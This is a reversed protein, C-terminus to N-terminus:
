GLSTFRGLNKFRQSAPLIGRPLAADGAHTFRAPRDFDGAGHARRAGHVGRHARDVAQEGEHDARLEGLRDFLEEAQEPSMDRCWQRVIEVLDEVEVPEEDLEREPIPEMDRARRDRVARDAALFIGRFTNHHRMQNSRGYASDGVVVAPGQRGADVLAVHNFLINKMWLDFHEGRHTGSEAIADYSYGPSLERRINEEILRISTEPWFVLGVKIFPPHWVADTGTAGIVLQAQAQHTKADHPEHISLIPLGNASRITEPKALESAPRLIKYRHDRNLGLASANPIEDGLYESIQDGQCVNCKEVHLRGASDTERASARDLALILRTM